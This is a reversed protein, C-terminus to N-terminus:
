NRAESFRPHGGFACSKGGMTASCPFPIVEEQPQPCYLRHRPHNAPKETKPRGPRRLGPSLRAAAPHPHTTKSRGGTQEIKAALAKHTALLERVKVFARVILISMQVARDSGLVASLMAVGHETFALPAYKSYRGRGKELTAFQSRLASAEQETLQFMFDEPFRKLNRCVAENLRKTPVQISRRLSWYSSSSGSGSVPLRIQWQESGRLWCVPCPSALGRWGRGQPGAAM